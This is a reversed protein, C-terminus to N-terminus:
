DKWPTKKETPLESGSFLKLIDQLTYMQAKQGQVVQRAAATLICGGGGGAM